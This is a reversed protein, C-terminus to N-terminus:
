MRVLEVRRNEARGAETDNSAAPQTSGLGMAKLREEAIGHKEVLYARVAEAREKSLTMNTEFGGEDDTHGEVLLRLDTHEQLLAAIKQLTEASETKITAEGTDFQIDQVAVRGASELADYLDKGGAAIRLKGISMPNEADAFYTNEFWLASSRALNANPVNAVRQQGIYVKAYSGDVMIRVPVIGETFPDDMSQLGEVGEGRLALGSENNGLHFYNQDKLFRVSGREPVVTALALEQNGHPFHVAFEITFREPLTESLPVKFAAGRPGLNRLFRQGQWETVEWNGKVFELRRPFDGVNDGTFDEAFITRAGPEFDYNANVEGPKMGAEEATVPDGNEDRKINGEADTLVVPKGQQQAEEICATDGVACKIADKLGGELADAGKEIGQDINKDIREEAEEKAREKIKDFLQAQAPPALLLAAACLTLVGALFRPTSAFTTM